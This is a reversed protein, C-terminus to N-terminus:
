DTKGRSVLATHLNISNCHNYWGCVNLNPVAVEACAKDFQWPDKQPNRFWARVAEAEHGFMEDPLNSWPLMNLLKDGESADWLAKGEAM